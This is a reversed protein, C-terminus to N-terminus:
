IVDLLLKSNGCPFPLPHSVESTSSFNGDNSKSSVGSSLVNVTHKQKHSIFNQLRINVLKMEHFINKETLLSTQLFVSNHWLSPACFLHVFVSYALIHPKGDTPSSFPALDTCALIQPKADILLSFPALYTCALIDCKVNM